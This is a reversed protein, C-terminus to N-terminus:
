THENIVRSELVYDITTVLAYLSWPTVLHSHSDIVVGIGKPLSFKGYM